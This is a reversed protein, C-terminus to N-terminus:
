REVHHLALDFHVPVNVVGHHRADQVGALKIVKLVPRIAVTAEHVRWEALLGLFVGRAPRHAVGVVVVYVDQLLAAEAHEDARRSAAQGVAFLDIEPGRNTIFRAPLLYLLAARVSRAVSPQLDKGAVAVASIGHCMEPPVGIVTDEELRFAHM